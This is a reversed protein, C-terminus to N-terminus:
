LKYLKNYEQRKKKGILQMNITSRSFGLERCAKSLSDYVVGTEKDIVKKGSHNNGRQAEKIRELGENTKPSSGKGYLKNLTEIRKRKSADSMKKGLNMQRLLEKTENNHSWCEGGSTKNTLNEQGYESIIFEELELADEISLGEALVEVKYGCKNVINHWHNNRDSKSTPRRRSGMGIYFVNGNDKRIHRYVVKNM